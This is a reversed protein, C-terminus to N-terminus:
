YIPAFARCGHSPFSASIFYECGSCTETDFVAGFARTNDVMWQQVPLPVARDNECFLYTSPVHFYAANDLPTLQVMAPCPRLLASWRDQQEEPLDAYFRWNPNQM